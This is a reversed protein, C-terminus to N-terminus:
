GLKNALDLDNSSTTPAQVPFHLRYYRLYPSNDWDSCEQGELMSTLIFPAHGHFGQRADDVNKRGFPNSNKRQKAGSLYQWLFFIKLTLSTRRATVKHSKGVEKFAREVCQNLEETSMAVNKKRSKRQCDALSYFMSAAETMQNYIHRYQPIPEHVEFWGAQGAAWFGYSGDNYEAFAYTTVNNLRIRKSHYKRDLHNLGSDIRQLVGSVKVPFASNAALLSVPRDGGEAVVNVKRLSFTPWNNSDSIAPDRPLLIRDEDIPIM